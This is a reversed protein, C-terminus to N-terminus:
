ENQRFTKAELYLFLVLYILVTKIGIPCSFYLCFNFKQIRRSARPFFYINCYKKKKKLVKEKRKEKKEAM